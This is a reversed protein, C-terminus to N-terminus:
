QKPKRLPKAPLQLITDLDTPSVTLMGNKTLRPTLTKWNADKKFVTQFLPLAESLKGSNALAIAHWYKM